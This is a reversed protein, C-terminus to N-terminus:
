FELQTVNAQVEIGRHDICHMSLSDITSLTFIATYTGNHHDTLHYTSLLRSDHWGSANHYYISIANASAPSQENQLMASVIIQQENETINHVHYTVSLQTTVTLQKRMNIQTEGTLNLLLTMRASSIGFGETGRFLFLGQAYPATDALTWHLSCLGHYYNCSVFTSWQILTSTLTENTASRSIQALMKTLLNQTEVEINSLFSHSSAPSDEIFPYYTLQYVYTVTSIVLIVIALASLILIQGSTNAGLQRM